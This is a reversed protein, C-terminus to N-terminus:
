VLSLLSAAWKSAEVPSSWFLSLSTSRGLFTLSLAVELRCTRAEGRTVFVGHVGRSGHSLGGILLFLFLVLPRTFAELAAFLSMKSADAGGFPISLSCVVAHNFHFVVLRIM